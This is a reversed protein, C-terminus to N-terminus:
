RVNSKGKLSPILIKFIAGEPGNEVTLEGQCRNEILLRAMHLGIGTGGGDLKSSVSPLFIENLHQHKIGGANDSFTLMCQRDSSELSITLAANQIKRHLFEEVSNQILALLVQLIDNPYSVFEGSENLKKQVTVGTLFTEMLKEARGIVKAISFAEPPQDKSYLGRFDRITESMFKAQIEVDHLAEDIEIATLNGSAIRLRQRGAVMTIASLPQRWQHAIISILDGMQAQRLRMQFALEKQKEANFERVAKLVTIRLDELDLPKILFDHAGLNMAKRINDMDGFASMIIVRALRTKEVIRELLEMGSTGPMKLDTVIVGLNPDDLFAKWAAEASSAFVLDYESNEVHDSLAQEFLPKVDLEDDVIIVGTQM